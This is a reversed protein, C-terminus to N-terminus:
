AVPEKMDSLKSWLDLLRNRVDIDSYISRSCTETMWAELESIVEQVQQNM